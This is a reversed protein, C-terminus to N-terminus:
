PPFGEEEEEEEELSQGESDTALVIQFFHVPLISLFPNYPSEV